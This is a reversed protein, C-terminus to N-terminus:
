YHNMVTSVSSHCQVRVQTVEVWNMGEAYTLNNDDSNVAQAGSHDSVFLKGLLLKTSM